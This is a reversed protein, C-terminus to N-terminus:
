CIPPGFRFRSHPDPLAVLGPQVFCDFHDAGHHLLLIAMRSLPPRIPTLLNQEESGFIPRQHITDTSM